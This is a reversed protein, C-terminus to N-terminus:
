DEAEEAEGLTPHVPPAGYGQSDYPAEDLGEEDKGELALLGMHHSQSVVGGADDHSEEELDDEKLFIGVSQFDDSSANHHERGKAPLYYFISADFFLSM